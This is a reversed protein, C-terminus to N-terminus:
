RFYTQTNNSGVLYFKSKTQYLAMRQTAKVKMLYQGSVFYVIIYIIITIFFFSSIYFNIANKDKIVQIHQFCLDSDPGLDPDTPDLSNISGHIRIWFHMSGSGFVWIRIEIMNVCFIKM